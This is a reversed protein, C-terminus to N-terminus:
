GHSQDDGGRTPLRSFLTRTRAPPLAGRRGVTSPFGASTAAPLAEIAFIQNGQPWTLSALVRGSELEVAHLGCVSRDVDLGPAYARFRPIVRSSGVLAVREGLWLGRTWGPLRALVSAEGGEVAVLEGYGSNALFLREGQLRASHPRTLGGVLPERTEGSFVVGRRDVPFSPQGPRRAGPRAASATFFSRELTPGAAISNLQLTNRSFDPRGEREISRPWWVRRWREPPDLVVVADHGVANGHLLGGVFALDHLYLSGPLFSSGTPVLPREPFREPDAAPELRYLENPNRTSALHVVGSAPEVALGSPHPLPLVSTRPRGAPASLAVVLHEYERTVLLTLGLEALLDWFGGRVRAALLSPDLASADRWHSAIQLPDRWEEGQRAWRADDEGPPPSM